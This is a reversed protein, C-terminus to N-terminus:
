ATGAPLDAQRQERLFAMVQRRDDASQFSRPALQVQFLLRQAEDVGRIVVSEREEAVSQMASFPLQVPGATLGRASVEIAIGSQMSLGAALRQRGMLAMPVLLGTVLWLFPGVIFVGCLGVPWPSDVRSALFALVVALSVSSVVRATFVARRSRELFQVFAELQAGDPKTDPPLNQSVVTGVFPGM